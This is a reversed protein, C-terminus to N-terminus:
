KPPRAPRPQPLIPFLPARVRTTKALLRNTATPAAACHKIRQISCCPDIDAGTTRCCQITKRRSGLGFLQGVPKKYTTDNHVKQEIRCLNGSRHKFRVMCCSIPWFYAAYFPEFYAAHFPGFTHLMFHALLICCLIPEFYAAYFPSLTHLMSHSLTHLM